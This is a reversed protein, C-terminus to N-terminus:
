HFYGGLPVYGLQFCSLLSCGMQFRVFLYSSSRHLQRDFHLSQLVQKVRVLYHPYLAKLYYYNPSMFHSQIIKLCCSGLIELAVIMVLFNLYLAVFYLCGFHLFNKM